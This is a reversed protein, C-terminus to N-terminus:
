TLFFIIMLWIKLNEKLASTIWNLFPFVLFFFVVEKKQWFLPRRNQKRFYAKTSGLGMLSKPYDLSSLWGFIGTIKVFGFFARSKLLGLICTKHSWCARWMYISILMFCKELRFVFYKLCDVLFEVRFSPGPPVSIM